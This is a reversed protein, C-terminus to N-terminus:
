AARSGEVCRRYFQENREVLAALSFRHEARQRAAGAVRRRLEADALLRIAADAISAPDHPDCHMGSVGDEVSEPGSTTRSVVVAKGAALAEVCAVSHAEVYSPFICVEARALLAPIEANAVPGAFTVRAAVDPPLTPALGATFSAGTRPDITDRGVVLLRAHPAAAVVAPMAALLSRIGKAECVTGVVLLLGPEEGGGADPRFQTTDVPNPLVEIRRGALGVLRCTEDAVYRSVACLHDAGRLLRRELWARGRRTRRGLTHSIFHHGGHMRIITPAPVGSPLVSHGLESSEIVDIPHARHERRLARRLRLSNVFPNVGRAFSAPIRVVRVGRDDEDSARPVRYGGVVTVRHGRAALARALTQTVSGIGGHSAPPYENCVFCIHLPSPPPATPAMTM